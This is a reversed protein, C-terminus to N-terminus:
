VEQTRHKWGLTFPLSAISAVASIAAVIFCLVAPLGYYWASFGTSITIGLGISLFVLLFVLAIVLSGLSNNMASWPNKALNLKDQPSAPEQWYHILIDHGTRLVIGPDKPRLVPVDSEEIMVGDLVAPQYDLKTTKAIELMELAMPPMHRPFDEPDVYAAQILKRHTCKDPNDAWNFETFDGQKIIWCAPFPSDTMASNLLSYYQPKARISKAIKDIYAVADKQFQEWLAVCRSYEGDTKSWDIHSNFLEKLLIRRCRSALFRNMDTIFAHALDRVAHIDHAAAAPWFTDARKGEVCEKLWSTDLIHQLAGLLTQRRKSTVAVPALAPPASVLAQM